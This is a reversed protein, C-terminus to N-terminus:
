GAQAVKEGDLASFPKRPPSPSTKAHNGGEDSKPAVLADKAPLIKKNKNTEAVKSEVPFAPTTGGTDGRRTRCRRPNESARWM